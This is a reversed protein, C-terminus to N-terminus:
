MPPCVFTLPRLDCPVLSVDPKTVAQVALADPVMGSSATCSATCSATSDSNFKHQAFTCTSTISSKHRAQTHYRIDPLFLDVSDFTRGTGQLCDPWRCAHSFSATEWSEGSSLLACPAAVTTLCCQRTWLAHSLGGICVMGLVALVLVCGTGVCCGCGEGALLPPLWPLSRYCYCGRM